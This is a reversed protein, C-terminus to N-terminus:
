LAASLWRVRVVATSYACLRIRTFAIRGPNIFVGITSFLASPLGIGAAIDLFHPAHAVALYRHSEAAFGPIDGPRRDIEGAVFAAVHGANLEHDVAAEREFAHSISGVAM